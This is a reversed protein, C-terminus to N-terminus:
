PVVKDITAGQLSFLCVGLSPTPDPSEKAKECVALDEKRIYGCVSAKGSPDKCSPLPCHGDDDTREM